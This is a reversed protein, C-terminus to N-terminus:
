PTTATTRTSAPRPSLRSSSPSSRSSARSSLPGTSSSSAIRSSSLRLSNAASALRGDSLSRLLVPDATQAPRRRAPSILFVSQVLRSRSEADRKEENMCSALVSMELFADELVSAQDYNPPPSSKLLDELQFAPSARDSLCSPTFSPCFRVSSVLMRYRPIRQVPLLLYSELNIQSHRPNTRARQLLSPCSM